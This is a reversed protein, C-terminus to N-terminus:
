DKAGQCYHLSGWHSVLRKLHNRYNLITRATVNKLLDSTLFEEVAGKITKSATRPTQTVMPAPVPPQYTQPPQYAPPPTFGTLVLIGEENPQHGDDLADQISMLQLPWTPTIRGYVNTVMTPEVSAGPFMKKFIEVARAEPPRQNVTACRRKQTFERDYDALLQIILQKAQKRDKTKLSRKIEQTPYYQRLDAPVQIRLYYTRNVKALNTM